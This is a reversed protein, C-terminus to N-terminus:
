GDLPFPLPDTDDSGTDGDPSCQLVMLALGISQAAMWEAQTPADKRTLARCASELSKIIEKHEM